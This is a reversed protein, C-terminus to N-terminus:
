IHILSLSTESGEWSCGVTDVTEFGLRAYVPAGEESAELYAPIGLEKCREIGWRVCISSIGRRRWEPRVCMYHLAAHPRAGMWKVQTDIVPQMFAKVKSKGEADTLWDGSLLYDCAMFEEPTRERNYIHWLAAGVIMESGTATDVHVCKIACPLSFDKMHKRWAYQHRLGAAKLNEPTPKGNLIEEVPVFQFAPILFSMIEPIDGEEAYEVRSMREAM